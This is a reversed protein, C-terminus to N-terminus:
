ARLSKPVLSALLFILSAALVIAPGAPLDWRLSAGLGGLVAGAGALAALAAM